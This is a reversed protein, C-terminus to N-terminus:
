RNDGSGGLKGRDQRSKLKQINAFAIDELPIDVEWAIEAIYWLVDGLELGIADRDEQNIIGGKDRMIKKIKDAVEGAEGALGLAPYYLNEGKGPYIATEQASQQYKDLTLPVHRREGHKQCLGKCKKISM